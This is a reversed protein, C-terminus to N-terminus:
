SKWLTQLGVVLGGFVFMGGGTLWFPMFMHKLLDNGLITGALCVLGAAWSLMMITVYVKLWNSM